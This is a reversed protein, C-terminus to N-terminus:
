YMGAFPAAARQQVVHAAEHGLLEHGASAGGFHIDSGRTAASANLSSDAGAHARVGSFDGGFASEMQPRLQEV